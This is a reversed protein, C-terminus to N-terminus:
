HNPIYTLLLLLEIMGFWKVLDVQLINCFKSFCGILSVFTEVLVKEKPLM